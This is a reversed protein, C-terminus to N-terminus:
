TLGEKALLARIAVAERGVLGQYDLRERGVVSLFPRAENRGARNLFTRLFMARGAGAVMRQLRGGPVESTDLLLWTCAVDAAAPGNCAGTWDIIVPGAPSLMVNDPHLDRHLLSEGAGFPEPLGTMAPVAHLLEHLRALSRAQGVLEWPHSAAYALMTPGEVREMVLASDRTEFVRPVPVGNARAHEMVLAESEVEQPRRYQRLVRGDDLAFIDASRGTGLLNPNM